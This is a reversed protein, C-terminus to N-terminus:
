GVGSSSSNLRRAASRGHASVSMTQLRERRFSGIAARTTAFAEIDARRRTLNTELGPPALRAHTLQNGERATTSGWGFRKDLPQVGTVATRTATSGTRLIDINALPDGDGLQLRQLSAPRALLPRDIGGVAEPMHCLCHPQQGAHLEGRLSQLLDQCWRL